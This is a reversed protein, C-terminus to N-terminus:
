SYKKVKSKLDSKNGVVYIVTNKPDVGNDKM